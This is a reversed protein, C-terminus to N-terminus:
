PLARCDTRSDLMDGARQHKDLISVEFVVGLIVGRQEIGNQFTPGIDDEAIPEM